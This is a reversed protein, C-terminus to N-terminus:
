YMHLKINVAMVAMLGYPSEYNQQLGRYVQRVLPIALLAILTPVPLIGLLVSFVIIAFAAAAAALYLNLVQGRSLIVPLTRKGARADAPRDPVENVYLILAVLIAVPLSAVFPEASLVGRSMVVYAGVLMLPGFGIATTLEGLGRYVLKLPPATYFVSLLIGLVGIVLLADSYRTLLLVLGVGIAIAYLGASIFAMRRLSVLGYQIVRSGGSYQTPNVNKEDTGAITDFIDNAVNLGLHVAAAGVLTLVAAPLDFFGHAAAIALGISVPIFTASLFPLRTARLTLWGLSLRPRVPRGQESSLRALYRRSQGVQREIYEPFPISSEDWGWAATARLVLREDQATARGWVTVHRREDYGYGPQPRIHSGTLSLESDPPLALGAPPVFSATGAEVDVTAEVAASIPYGDADVYSLLAFPFTELRRLGEDPEFMAVGARLDM